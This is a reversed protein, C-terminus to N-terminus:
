KEQIKEQKLYLNEFEGLTFIESIKGEEKMKYAANKRVSDDDEREVFMNSASLKLSYKGGRRVIEKVLRKALPLDEEISRSFSFRKGRFESSQPKVRYGYVFDNFKARKEGRERKEKSKERLYESRRNSSCNTFQYNEIKGFRISYKKLLEDLSCQEKCCMEQAIRMTAYADDAACHPTSDIEFIQTLSELGAQRDYTETMAMYLIQTDAFRFSFSPLKYRKTELCLYKVDNIAAHGFVYSDKDELLAKIKDYFAKFDPYKKFDDYDYPLILGEGGRDTLHFKGNPNILIDEKQLIHFQEDCVCYGFVCIKAVNKYVCACEIDFFVYKM